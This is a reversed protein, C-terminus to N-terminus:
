THGREIESSLEQSLKPESVIPRFSQTPSFQDISRTKKRHCNPCLIQLNEIATKGGDSAQIIHDVDFFEPHKHHLGCAMCSWGITLLPQSAVLNLVQIRELTGKKVKMGTEREVIQCKMQFIRQKAHTPVDNMSAAHMAALEPGFKALIVKNRKRKRRNKDRRREGIQGKTRMVCGLNETGIIAM